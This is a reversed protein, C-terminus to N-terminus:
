LKYNRVGNNVLFCLQWSQTTYEDEPAFVVAVLSGRTSVVKNQTKTSVIAVVSCFLGAVDINPSVM